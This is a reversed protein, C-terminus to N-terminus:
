RAQELMEATERHALAHLLSVILGQPVGADKAAAITTEIALGFSSFAAAQRASFPEPLHLVSSM